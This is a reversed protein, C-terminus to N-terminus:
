WKQPYIVLSEPSSNTERESPETSRNTPQHIDSNSNESELYSVDRSSYFSQRSSVELGHFFTVPTEPHKISTQSTSSEQSSPDHGRYVNHICSIKSKRSSGLPRELSRLSNSSNITPKLNISLSSSTESISSKSSSPSYREESGQFSYCSSVDSEEQSSDFTEDSGEYSIPKRANKLKTGRDNDPQSRESMCEEQSSDKRERIDDQEGGENNVESVCNKSKGFHIQEAVSNGKNKCKTKESTASMATERKCYIYTSGQGTFCQVKDETETEVVKKAQIPSLKRKETHNLQQNKRIYVARNPVIDVKRTSRSITSDTESGEFLNQIDTNSENDQFTVRHQGSWTVQPYRSINAQIKKVKEWESEWRGYESERRLIRELIKGNEYSIKNLNLRQQVANLSRQPYFNWNDLRGHSQRIASLKNSHILNQKQIVTQLEKNMQLKKTNVLLHTPTEPGKTVVAPIALAVKKRHTEYRNRDWKDQLYLNATPLIPQYARYMAAM